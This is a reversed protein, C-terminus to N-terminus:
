KSTGSEVRIRDWLPELDPDAAAMAFMRQRNGSRKVAEELWAWAETLRNLQSAYCALNFPIIPEEPFQDVAPLL